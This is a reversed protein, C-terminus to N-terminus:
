ENVADTVKKFDEHYKNRVLYFLIAAVIGLIPLLSMAIRLNYNDSIKGVLVPIGFTFLNMILVNVGFSLARVNTKVVEQTITSIPALFAVTNIGFLLLYIVCSNLSNTNIALYLFVISILTSIISVAIKAHIYRKGWIDAIFGGLPAGILVAVALIGSKMAADRESLDHFRQFFTPIWDIVTTNLGIILSYAFYIYWLTPIKFLYLCDKFVEKSLTVSQKIKEPIKITHYDVVFLFAISMIIGPAAVLGFAHRWGYVEAIYGGLMIGLGSGIPAAADYIGIYRSRYNRPFTKTIMTVAAAAYAAEGLGTLARFFLLQEYNQAFSCMLTAISWVFVMISIMYKRSWRDVIISMPIVFISIMLSVIGNLLGLESDQLDWEVKISEFIASMVKRDAYDLLYIIFILTLLYFARGKTSQIM